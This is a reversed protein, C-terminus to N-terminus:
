ERWGMERVLIVLCSIMCQVAGCIRAVVNGVEIDPQVLRIKDGEIYVDAQREGDANVVTGGVILVASGSGRPCEAPQSASCSGSSYSTSGAGHCSATSGSTSSVASGSPNSNACTDAAETAAAAAEKLPNGGSNTACLLVAVALSLTSMLLAKMAFARRRVWQEAAHGSVSSGFLLNGTAACSPAHVVCTANEHNDNKFNM